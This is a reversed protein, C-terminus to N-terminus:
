MNATRDCVITKAQLNYPKIQATQWSEYDCSGLQEFFFRNTQITNLYM